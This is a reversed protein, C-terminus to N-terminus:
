CLSCRVTPALHTKAARISKSRCLRSPRDGTGGGHSLRAHYKEETYASIPGLESLLDLFFKIPQSCGWWGFNHLRQGYRVVAGLLPATASPACIVQRKRRGALRLVIESTSSAFGLLCVRLRLESLQRVTHREPLCFLFDARKVLRLAEAHDAHARPFNTGVQALCFAPALSSTKKKRKQASANSKYNAALIDFVFRSRVAASARAALEDCVDPVADDRTTM